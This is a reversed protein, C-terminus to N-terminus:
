ETVEIGAAAMAARLFAAVRPAEAADLGHTVVVGDFGVSKLSRLYHGYDLVGTGATAFAGDATRDKAHGIAIRDGLLDVAESVSRRQEALSAREFLNAPDLVVRLRPSALERILLAAKAASDVVNAHEPEVGLDVGFRDAVAVAAEMSALMDRWAEPSANDPHARWQDHPDRSGTCLTLLPIATAAAMEALISLSRHGAARVAPDPHAMNYTASLACLDVGTEAVARRLAAVADEDPSAPLSALGSCAMNYQVSRYGATVAAGLVAWPTRGDFTKAFIGLRM